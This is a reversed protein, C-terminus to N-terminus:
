ERCRMRRLRGQDAYAQQIFSRNVLYSAYAFSVLSIAVSLIQLNQARKGGSLLVIGKGVTYGIVVAVLGFSTNTMVTFGWWALVGVGGGLLGGLAAVPYNIDRGQGEVAQHLQATLNNFCPRCFVGDETAQQDQGEVLITSCEACRIEEPTGTPQSIEDM